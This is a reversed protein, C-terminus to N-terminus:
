DETTTDWVVAYGGKALNLQPLELRIVFESSAAPDLLAAPANATESQIVEHKENYLELRLGPVTRPIDGINAVYGRVVLTEIGGIRQLRKSSETISLGDGPKPAEVGVTDYLAQIQPLLKALEARAFWLTAVIIGVFGVMMIATTYAPDLPKRIKVPAAPTGRGGGARSAIQAFGDEAGDEAEEETEDEGTSGFNPRDADPDVLEEDEDAGLAAAAAAASKGSPGGSAGADKKKAAADTKLEGAAKPAGAAGAVLEAEAKKGSPGAGPGGSAGGDALPDGQESAGEAAAGAAQPGAGPGGSAGPDMMSQGPQAGAAAPAAAAAGPGGSAGANDLMSQGPAGPAVESGDLLSRAGQGPAMIENSIQSVAAAGPGAPLNRDMMSQGPAGPAGPAGPKMWSVAAEGPAGQAGAPGRMSQGPLPAASVGQMGPPMAVPAAGPTGPPVIQGQQNMWSVAGQGPAQAAGAQGLMSQGALAAAQAQAPSTPAGLGATMINAGPGGMAGPPMGPMAGMPMQGPGGQMGPPLGQPMGPMGPMGPAMGPPMAVPAAGPTGPPVIQGQPNMWSIAGQGPAPAAGAQGRMSQGPLPAAGPGAHAGPMGLPAGQPMQQQVGPQQMWSVAGQGPANPAPPLGARNGALVAAAQPQAGPAGTAGPQQQQPAQSGRATGAFWSQATTPPAGAGQNPRQQFQNRRSLMSVAGPPVPPTGPAPAAPNPQQQRLPAAQVNRGPERPAGLAGAQAGRQGEVAGLASALLNRANQAAAAQANPIPPVRQIGQPRQQQARQQAQPQQRAAQANGQANAAQAAYDDGMVSALDLSEM